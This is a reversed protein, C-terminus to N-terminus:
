LELETKIFGKAEKGGTIEFWVSGTDGTMKLNFAFFDCCQREKKAFETLEDIMKDSGNFKFAYGNPLEKKELIKKRLSELVTAKRKQLEPTTLKCAVNTDTTKGKNCNTDKCFTSNSEESKNSSNTCGSLLLISLLFIKIKENM